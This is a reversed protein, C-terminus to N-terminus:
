AAVSPSSEKSAAVALSRAARQKRNRHFSEESRVIRDAYGLKPDWVFRWLIATWSRHSVLRDYEPILRKLQPLRWGPVNMFDHHEYHHGVNFTLYNIPGYYSFTEQEPAFTYHEHIFHAAVPHPGHGFYFSAALYILATPGLLHWIAVNVAVMLLFNLVELRSPREVFTLGRGFYVIPYLLLWIAKRLRSTGITRVEWSHPLDTDKGLVGLYNHHALHYRNFTMAIPVVMPLNAVLAVLQNAFKTKAALRHATEHIGMALWHSLPAGVFYSLLGVVWWRGLFGGTTAEKSLFGAILFQLSGVALVVWITRRDYGFLKRVEPYNKLLRKRRQAHPEGSTVTTNYVNEM